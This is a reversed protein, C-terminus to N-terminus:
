RLTRPRSRLWAILPILLVVLALWPNRAIPVPTPPVPPAGCQLPPDPISLEVRGRDADFDLVRLPGSAYPELIRVPWLNLGGPPPSPTSLALLCSYAQGPSVAALTWGRGGMFCGGPPGANAGCGGPLEGSVAFAPFPPLCAGFRMSDVATPGDNRLTVRLHHTGPGPDGDCTPAATLELRTLSGAVWTASNGAPGPDDAPLAVHWNLLLDATATAARTLQHDCTIREGPQLDTLDFEWAPTTAGGGIPADVLRIAGCRPSTTSGFLWLPPRPLVPAFARLTVVPAALAGDNRVTMSLGAIGGPAVFVPTRPSLTQEIVIDSAQAPTPACLSAAMAATVYWNSRGRM